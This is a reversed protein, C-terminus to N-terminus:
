RWEPLYLRLAYWLVCGLGICLSIGTQWIFSPLYHKLIFLAIWGTIRLSAGGAIRRTPHVRLFLSYWRM